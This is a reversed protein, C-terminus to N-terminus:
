RKMSFGLLSIPKEIFRYLFEAEEKASAPSASMRERIMGCLALLTEPDELHLAKAKSVRQDIPTSFVREAAKLGAESSLPRGRFPLIRGTM